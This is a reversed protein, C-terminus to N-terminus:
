ADDFKPKRSSIKRFTGEARVNHGTVFPFLQDNLTPQQSFERKRKSLFTARSSNAYIWNEARTLSLDIYLSDTNPFYNLKM